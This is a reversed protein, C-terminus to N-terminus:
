TLNHCVKDYVVASLSLLDKCCVSQRLNGHLICQNQEVRAEEDGRNDESEEAHVTEQPTRRM